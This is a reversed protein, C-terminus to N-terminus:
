VGRGTRDAGASRPLAPRRPDGPCLGATDTQAPCTHHRREPPPSKKALEHIKGDGTALSVIVADCESGQFRDVTDVMRRIQERHDPFEAELETRIRAVQARFPAIVGLPRKRDFVPFGADHLGRVLKCVVRAESVSTRPGGEANPSVDIVVIPKHPSLAPDNLAADLSLQLRGAGIDRTAPRLKARTGCGRPIECIASNMRYQERLHVLGRGGALRDSLIEFLSVDLDNGNAEAEATIGSRYGEGVVVAPLQRHDGILVFRKALRIAGLTAPVTLQAAEDVIVLDFEGLGQEYRGSLLTHM